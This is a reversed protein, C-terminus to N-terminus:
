NSRDLRGQGIDVDLMVMQLGHHVHLPLATDRLSCGAGFPFKLGMGRMLIAENTWQADRIKVVALM